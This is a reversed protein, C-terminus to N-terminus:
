KLKTNRFSLDPIDMVAPSYIHLQENAPDFVLLQM